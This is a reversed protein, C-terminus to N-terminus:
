VLERIRGRGELEAGGKRSKPGEDYGEGDEDTVPLLAVTALAKFIWLSASLLLLSLIM